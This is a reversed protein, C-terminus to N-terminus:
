DHLIVVIGRSELERKLSKNLSAKEKNTLKFFHWVVGKVQSGSRLLEADKPMQVERLNKESINFYAQHAVGGADMADVTRKTEPSVQLIKETGGVLTRLYTVAEKHNTIRVPEKLVVAPEKMLALAESPKMRGQVERAFTRTLDTLRITEAADTVYSAAGASMRKPGWGGNEHGFPMRVQQEAHVAVKRLLGLNSYVAEGEWASPLRGVGHLLKSAPGSGSGQGSQAPLKVRVDDLGSAFTFLGLIHDNALRWYLGDDRGAEIAGTVPDKGTNGWVFATRESTLVTKQYMNAYFYATLALFLLLVTTLVIAPATLSAELSFQGSESRWLGPAYRHRSGKKDRSHLRPM